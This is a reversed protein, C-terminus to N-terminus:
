QPYLKGARYCPLSFGGWHSNKEAEMSVGMSNASKGATRGTMRQHYCQYILSFCGLHSNIPFIITFWPSSLGSTYDDMSIRQLEGMTISILGSSIFWAVHSEGKNKGLNEPWVTTDGGQEQAYVLSRLPGASQTLDSVDNWLSIM